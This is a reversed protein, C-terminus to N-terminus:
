ARCSFSIEFGRECNPFAYRAFMSTSCQSVMNVLIGASVVVAMKLEEAADKVVSWVDYAGAGDEDLAGAEEDTDTAEAGDEYLAGEM